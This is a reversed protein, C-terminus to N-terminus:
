LSAEGGILCDFNWKKLIKRRPERGRNVSQGESRSWSFIGLSHTSVAMAWCFPMELAEKQSLIIFFFCFKPYLNLLAGFTRNSFLYIVYKKRFRWVATIFNQLATSEERCYQKVHFCLYRATHWHMKQRSQAYPMCAWIHSLVWCVTLVFIRFFEFSGTEVWFKSNNKDSMFILKYKIQWFLLVIMWLNDMIRMDTNIVKRNHEM